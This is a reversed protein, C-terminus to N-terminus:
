MSAIDARGSAKSEARMRAVAPAMRLNSLNRPMRASGRNFPTGSQMLRLTHRNRVRWIAHRVNRMLSSLFYSAVLLVILLGWNQKGWDNVADMMSSLDATDIGFM